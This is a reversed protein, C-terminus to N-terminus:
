AWMVKLVAKKVQFCLLSIHLVEYKSCVYQLLCRMQADFKTKRVDTSEGAIPHM